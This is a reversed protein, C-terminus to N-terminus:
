RAGGLAPLEVVPNSSNGSGAPSAPTAPAPSGPRMGRPPEPHRRDYSEMAAAMAQPTAALGLSTQVSREYAARNTQWLQHEREQASIVPQDARAVRWGEPLQEGRNTYHLRQEGTEPNYITMPTGYRQQGATAASALHHRAAAESERARALQYIAQPNQPNQEWQLKAQETRIQAERYRATAENELVKNMDQLQQRQQAQQAELAGSMAQGAAVGAYPSQSAALRAGFDMLMQSAQQRPSPREAYAENLRSRLTALLDSPSSDQVTNAAGPTIVPPTQSDSM